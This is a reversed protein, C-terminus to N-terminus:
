QNNNINNGFCEDCIFQSSIIEDSIRTFNYIQRLKLNINYKQCMYCILEKKNNITSSKSLIFARIKDINNETTSIQYEKKLLNLFSTLINKSM